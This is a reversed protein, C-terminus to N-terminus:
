TTRPDPPPGNDADVPVWLCFQVVHLTIEARRLLLRSFHLEARVSDGAGVGPGCLYRCM